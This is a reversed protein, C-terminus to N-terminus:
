GSATVRSLGPRTTHDIAPAAIVVIRPAAGVPSVTRKAASPTVSPPTPAPKVMSLPLAASPRAIAGAPVLPPAIMPLVM